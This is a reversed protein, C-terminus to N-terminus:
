SVIRFVVSKAYAGELVVKFGRGKRTWRSVELNAIQPTERDAEHDVEGMDDM